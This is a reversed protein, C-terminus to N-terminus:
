IGEARHARRSQAQDHDSVRLRSEAQAVNLPGLIPLRRSEPLSLACRRGLCREKLEKHQCYKTAQLSAPMDGITRKRSSPDRLRVAIRSKSNPPSLVLVTQHVATRVLVKRLFKPRRFNNHFMAEVVAPHGIRSRPFQGM